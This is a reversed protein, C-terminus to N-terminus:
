FHSQNKKQTNIMYVVIKSFVSILELHKMYIGQCKRHLSDTMHLYPCNIKKKGIQIGEGRKGKMPTPLFKWHPEGPPVTTLLGGALTPSALSM